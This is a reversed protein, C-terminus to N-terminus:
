DILHPRYLKRLIISVNSVRLHLHEILHQMVITHSAPFSTTVRSIGLASLYNFYFRDALLGIGSGKHDSHVASLLGTIQGPATFRHTKFSLTRGTAPDFLRCVEEDPSAFSKRVYEQYRRGSLVPGIAPDTSYRDSDFSTATINLVEELTADTTVREFGYPMHEVAHPRVMMDGTVQTEVLRFGAAEAAHIAAAASAPLRCSVYGPQCTAVYDREFADFDADADFDSISLVPLGFARSDIDNRHVQM